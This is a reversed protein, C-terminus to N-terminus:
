TVEIRRRVARELTLGAVALALICALAYTPRAHVAEYGPFWGDRVLEVAHLVPNYLLLERATDPLSNATFFLGSIWFFPRMLPGRARDVAPSLQGLGCFVLGLSTGLLSALTFGAIVLLSSHIQLEQQYVAHVGMLVLFVGAYTVAELLGRAIALDLPQVHPYFLLAKNGNISEAVRQASSSFLLYPIIGTGVFSFIDLDAPAARRALAFLLYFTFILATAELLAWLYGLQNSGFRTRTERLLIAYVVEAQSLLGKV